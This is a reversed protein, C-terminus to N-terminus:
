RGRFMKYLLVAIGTIALMKVIGIHGGSNNNVWAGGIRGGTAAASSQSSLDGSIDVPVAGAAM